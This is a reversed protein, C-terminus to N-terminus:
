VRAAHARVAEEVWVRPAALRRLLVDVYARRHEDVNAFEGELWADPIMAVIEELADRTLKPALEADVERLESAWPLLVHDAIQANGSHRAFGAATRPFANRARNLHDGWAHHFILSAGHDILWLDRHWILLNTNKATRDVNTM